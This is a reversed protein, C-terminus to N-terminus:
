EHDSGTKPFDYQTEVWLDHVAEQNGESALDMLEYFRRDRNTKAGTWAKLTMTQM